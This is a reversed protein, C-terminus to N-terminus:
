EGKGTIDERNGTKERLCGITVALAFTWQGYICSHRVDVCVLSYHGLDRKM